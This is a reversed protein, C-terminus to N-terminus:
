HQVISIVKNNCAGKRFSKKRLEKTHKDKKNADKSHNSIGAVLKPYSSRYEIRLLMYCLYHM